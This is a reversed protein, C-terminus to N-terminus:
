GNKVEKCQHYNIQNFKSKNQAAFLQPIRKELNLKKHIELEEFLNKYDYTPTESKKDPNNVTYTKVQSKENIKNLNFEKKLVFADAKDPFDKYIFKSIVPQYGSFKVIASLEPLNMIESPMLLFEKQKQDSINAGSKSDDIGISLSQKSEMYETEGIRESCLKASVSDTVSFIMSNGCANVISQRYERSYLKDLQGFDQIGLFVSGGKSRSLTLLKIITSLRQLTGFEDLMFFIRRDTSEKMSLFRRGLLDVFLSLIPKLTDQINAYNSVFIIGNGNELWENTSFNGDCHVMYEFCKTYQMMVAIVSLAQKSSADQIYTYGREGGKTTKLCKAIFAIPSTLMSWLESNNTLKEQLLYHLIGAFVDRAADNWFPESLSISSPILSTAISEIDMPTQIENFINWGVTRQDLPNFIQDMSPNYFKTLYDGKFDYIICREKRQILRELVQSICVTKGVGPRGVIFCHRTEVKFPMQINGIPLDVQEQAIKLAKIYDQISTLKSGRLYKLKNQKITKRRFHIILIPYILFCCCSGLLLIKLNAITHQVYGIIEIRPNFKFSFLISWLKSIYYNFLINFEQIEFFLILGISIFIIQFFLVWRLFYFHMSLKLYLSTRSREFSEYSQTTKISM